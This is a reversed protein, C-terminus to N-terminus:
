RSIQIPSRPNTIAPVAAALLISWQHHEKVANGPGPVNAADGPCKNVVVTTTLSLRFVQETTLVTTLSLNTYSLPFRIDVSFGSLFCSINFVQGRLEAPYLMPKRFRRDRTRTVGPTSTGTPALREREVEFEPLVAIKLGAEDGDESDDEGKRLGPWV